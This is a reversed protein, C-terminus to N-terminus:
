ICDNSWEGDWERHWVCAPRYSWPTPYYWRAYAPFYCPCRIAEVHPSRWHAEAAGDSGRSESLHHHRQSHRARNAKASKSTAPRSTVAQRHSRPTVSPPIGVSPSIESSGPLISPTGPSVPPEPSQPVTTNPPSPNFVPPPPPPVPNVFQAQAHETAIGFFAVWGAVFVKALAMREFRTTHMAAETLASTESDSHISWMLGASDKAIRRSAAHRHCRRCDPKTDPRDSCALVRGRECLLTRERCRRGM